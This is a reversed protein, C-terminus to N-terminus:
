PRCSVGRDFVGSNNTVQTLTVAGAGVIRAIYVHSARDNGVATFAIRSASLWCVSFDNLSTSQFGFPLTPVTVINVEGTGDANMIRLTTSNLQDALDYNLFLYALKTGDPSFQVGQYIPGIGARPDTRLQVRNAGNWDLAWISWGASNVVIAVRGAANVAMPSDINWANTQSDPLVLSDKAAGATPAQRILVSKGNGRYFYYILTGDPSWSPYQEVETGSTLRTQVSDTLRTTYIDFLSNGTSTQGGYVLQGTTPHQMARDLARAALLSQVRRATGDILYIGRFSGATTAFRQFSLRAGGLSDYPALELAPLITSQTQGPDDIVSSAFCGSLAAFSALVFVRFRM